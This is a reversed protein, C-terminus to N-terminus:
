IMRGLRPNQRMILKKCHQNMSNRNCNECGFLYRRTMANKVRDHHVTEEKRQGRIKLLPFKKVDIVLFPGIWPSQLKRCVGAKASSDLKYVLDGSSYTSQRLKVDYTKKQRFQTSKLRERAIQHAEQMVKYLRKVFEPANDHQTDITPSKFVLDAPMTLERGFMMFNASYGTQRNQMARIAAGVFPLYEDWSKQDDKIFCRIIQLILRNFREVQGNSCPRYPTTRTKVIDLM